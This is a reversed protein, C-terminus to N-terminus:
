LRLAKSVSLLSEMAEKIYRNKSSESKWGGHRMILRDHIGIVAALSASGGSRMSHLGYKLPDLDISKLMARVEELARTYSLNQSHLSFGLNTHCIKRFLPSDAKHGGMRLFKEILSM